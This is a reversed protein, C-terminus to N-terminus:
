PQVAQRDWLYQLISIASVAVADARLTRHGLTTLRVGKADAAQWEGESWGGEPGVLLAADAPVSEGELMSLAEVRAGASPEVLMLRVAAPPEDLFHELTLPTRVDPLVARGSQKVSALAIRRWRDVRAGRVLAAITTESRKSVIPQVAAVGLMVADRIVDDMKDGKLVAQALTIAVPSEAAADARSLIQVVVDRRAASIVRALYERGRGDFVAVTEGAGIRLVRTAHEAEDKPLVTTEDGPDLSPAFFRHM